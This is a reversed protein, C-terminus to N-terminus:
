GKLRANKRAKPPTRRAAKGKGGPAPGDPHAPRELRREMGLMVAPNVAFVDRPEGETTRYDRATRTAVDGADLVAVAKEYQALQNDRFKGRRRAAAIVDAGYYDALLADRDVYSLFRADDPTRQGHQVRQTVEIFLRADLGSFGERPGRAARAGADLRELVDGSLAMRFWVPRMIPPLELEYEDPLPGDWAGGTAGVRAFDAAIRNADADSLNRRRDDSGRWRPRLIFPHVGEEATVVNRGEVEGRLVVCLSLRACARLADFLRRRDKDRTTTLGAARYMTRAPVRLPGAPLARGDDGETTFLRFATFLARFQDAPLRGLQNGATAVEVANRLVGATAGLPEVKGGDIADLASALAGTQYGSEILQRPLLARDALGTSKDTARRLQRAMRATEAEAAERAARAEAAAREADQTRRLLERRREYDAAEDLELFVRSRLGPWDHAGFGAGDLWASLSLVGRVALEDRLHADLEDRSLTAKSELREWTARAPIASPLEGYHSGSGLAALEAAAARRGAERRWIAEAAAWDEETLTVPPGGDGVDVTLRDEPPPDDPPGFPRARGVLTRAAYMVRWATAHAARENETLRTHDRLGGVPSPDELLALERAGAATAKTAFWYGTALRGALSEALGEAHLRAAGVAGPEPPVGRAGGTLVYLVAPPVASADGAILADAAAGHPDMPRYAEFDELETAPADAAPTPADTM